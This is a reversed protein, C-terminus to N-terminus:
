KLATFSNAVVHVGSSWGVWTKVSPTIGQSQSTKQAPVRLWLDQITSNKKQRTATLAPNHEKSSCPTTAPPRKSRSRHHPPVHLAGTIPRFAERVPSPSLLASLATPVGGWAHHLCCRSCMLTLFPSYM